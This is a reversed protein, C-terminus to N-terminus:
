IARITPMGQPDAEIPPFNGPTYGFFILIIAPTLTKTINTNERITKVRDPKINVFKISSDLIRIQTTTNNQVAPVISLVIVGLLISRIQAGTAAACNSVPIM